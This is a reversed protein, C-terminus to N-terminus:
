MIQYWWTMDEGLIKNPLLENVAQKIGIHKRNNYDHGGIWGGKKVKPLWWIIDNFVAEYSHDGDIFVLDFYNHNFLLHADRSRKNIVIRRNEAFATVKIAMNKIDVWHKKRTYFKFVKASEEYDGWCDIMILRLKSNNELLYKANEGRYVGIECVLPKNINEIRKLIEKSRGMIIKPPGM